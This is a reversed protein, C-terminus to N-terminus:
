QTLSSAQCQEIRGQIKLLKYLIRPLVGKLITRKLVNDRM